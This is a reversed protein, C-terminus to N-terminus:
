GMGIGLIHRAAAIWIALTLYWVPANGIGPRGSLRLTTGILLGYTLIRVLLGRTYFGGQLDYVNRLGFYMLLGIVLVLGAAWLLASMFPVTREQRDCGSMVYMGAGLAAILVGVTGISPSLDTVWVPLSEYATPFLDFLQPDYALSFVIGALLAALGAGAETQGSKGRSVIAWILLAGAFVAATLFFLKTYNPPQVTYACSFAVALMGAHYLGSFAYATRKLGAAPNDAVNTVTM